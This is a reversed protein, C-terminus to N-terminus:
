ALIEIFSRQGRGGPLEATHTLIRKFGQRLLKSEAALWDAKSAPGAYIIWRPVAPRMWALARDPPAVARMLVLDAKKLRLYDEGRGGFFELPAAVQAQACISRVADIKKRVSDLLCIHPSGLGLEHHWLALPVGPLGGGSGWDVIRKERALGLQLVLLSDYLHKWVGEGPDRIATLNVKENELLLAGLYRGLALRLAQEKPALSAPPLARRKEEERVLLSFPAWDKEQLLEM